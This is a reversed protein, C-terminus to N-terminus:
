DESESHVVEDAIVQLLQAEACLLTEEDLERSRSYALYEEVLDVVLENGNVM